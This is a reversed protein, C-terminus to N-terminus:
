GLYYGSDTTPRKPGNPDFQANCILILNRKTRRAQNKGKRIVQGLVEVVADFIDDPDEEAMDPVDQHLKYGSNAYAVVKGEMDYLVSKTSTTGVDVGIMYEM